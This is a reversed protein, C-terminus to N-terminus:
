DGERPLYEIRTKAFRYGSRELHRMADEFKDFREGLVHYHVGPSFRTIEIAPKSWESVWDSIYMLCCERDHREAASRLMWYCTERKLDKKLPLEDLLNSIAYGCFAGGEMALSIWGEISKMDYM